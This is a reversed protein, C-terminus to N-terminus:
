QVSRLVREDRPESENHRESRAQLNLNERMGPSARMADSVGLRYIWRLYENMELSAKQTDSLGLRYIAQRCDTQRDRGSDRWAMGVIPHLSKLSFIIACMDHQTLNNHSGLELIESQFTTKKTQRLAESYKSQKQLKRWPPIDEKIQKFALLSSLSLLIKIEGNDLDFVM